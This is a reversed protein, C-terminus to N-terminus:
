WGSVILKILKHTDRWLYLLNCIHIYVYIHYLICEIYYYIFMYYKNLYEIINYCLNAFQKLFMRINLHSYKILTISENM